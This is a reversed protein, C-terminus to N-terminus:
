GGLGEKVANTTADEIAGNVRRARKILRGPHNLVLAAMSSLMLAADFM